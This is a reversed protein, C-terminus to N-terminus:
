LMGQGVPSPALRYHPVPLIRQRGILHATFGRPFLRTLAPDQADLGGTFTGYAPLVIRHGDEVFCRASLRRGRQVIAAKPHFHGSVEGARPGDAAEHRFTLPGLTVTEAVRGGWLNLPADALDAGHHDHNGIIWVLDVRGAIATLRAADPAPLRAPGGGDHFSDGLAILSRPALRDLDAELRTLCEASDYPPLFQGTRALASAKELHLDAVILVQRDPWYLGGSLLPVLRTGNLSIDPPAASASEAASRSM